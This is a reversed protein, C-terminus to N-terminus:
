VFFIYVTWSLTLLGVALSIRKLRLKSNIKLERIERRLISAEGLRILSQKLSMHFGDDKVVYDVIQMTFMDVALQINGQASLMIVPLKSYIGNIRQAVDAGTKLGEYNENIAFDCYRM